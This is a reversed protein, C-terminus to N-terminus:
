FGGKVSVFGNGSSATFQVTTNTTKHPKKFVLVLGVVSAFGGVVFAATSANGAMNMDQVATMGAPSCNFGNPDPLCDTDVIDKQRVAIGGLLAGVALGAVGVGFVTGGAIRQANSPGNPSATPVVGRAAPPTSRSVLKSQQPENTTVTPVEANVIPTLDVDVAKGSELTVVRPAEAHGGREVVVLHEGPDMPWETNLQSLGDLGSVTVKIDSPLDGRWVLKLRAVQAKLAEIRAKSSEVRKVRKESANPALTGSTELYTRYYWLATAPKGEHDRCEALAFLTGDTPDLEQAQELLPCAAAFKEEEDLKKAEAFLKDAKKKDAATQGLANAEVCFLGVAIGLRVWHKTLMFIETSL